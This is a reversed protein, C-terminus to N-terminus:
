KGYLGQPKVVLSLMMLLFLTPNVWYTGLFYGAVVQIEAVIFSAIITGKISGLGGFVVIIFAMLLPLDGMDPSVLQKSGLFVGAIGALGCALAVVLLYIKTVSIGMLRSADPDQEVARMALGTKTRKLFLAVAILISIATITIVIDKNSVALFSYAYSGPLFDPLRKVRPGFAVLVGNSVFISVALTSIIIPMLGQKLLPQIALIQLVMGLVFSLAVAVIASALFPIGLVELVTWCSYASILIFSGHAFSFINLTGWIVTLGMSMLVYLAGLSLGGVLAGILPAVM